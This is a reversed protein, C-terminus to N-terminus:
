QMSRLCEQTLAEDRDCAEYVQIVTMTDFGLAELRHIAARQEDNFQGMLREYETTRGLGTLDFDNPNLGISGLFAAPDDQILRTLGPNQDAVEQLFTRLKEPNRIMQNRFHTFRRLQSDVDDEDEDEEPAVEDESSDSDSMPIVATSLMPRPADPIQGSLLFEAARDVNGLAARVARECDGRSFGMDALQDVKAKFGPPDRGGSDPLDPLAAAVPQAKGKIGPNQIHDM